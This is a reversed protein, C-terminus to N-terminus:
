RKLVGAIAQAVAASPPARGALREVIAAAADTAIAEISSMAATRRGAIAKEAEAIRAHLTGDLEKRKAEAAAAERERAENALGQARGRAEALSKEYAAVAEDSEGKLRQAESLDASVKGEREAIIGSIRPLAIRSMLVYLAIFTIAFWFLQSPFTEKQFPPFGGGHEGGPVETHANGGSEAM